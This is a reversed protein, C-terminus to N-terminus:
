QKHAILEVLADEARAYATALTLLARKNEPSKMKHMTELANERATRLEAMRLRLSNIAMETM